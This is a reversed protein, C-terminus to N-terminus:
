AIWSTCRCRCADARGDTAPGCGTDTADSFFVTTAGRYDTIARQWYAQISNVTGILRCDRSADADQGTRCEEHVYGQQQGGAAVGDLSQLASLDIVQGGLLTVLLVVILGLAGAGGGVAM